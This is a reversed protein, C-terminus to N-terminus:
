LSGLPKPPKVLFEVTRKKQIACTLDVATANTPVGSLTACQEDRGSGPQPQTLQRVVLQMGTDATARVVGAALDDPANLVELRWELFWGGYEGPVATEELVVQYPGLATTRKLPRTTGAKLMPVNSFTVLDGAALGAPRNFELRLRWATEDPWLTGQIWKSYGSGWDTRLLQTMLDYDFLRNGTADSLEANRLVWTNSGASARLSIDFASYRVASRGQPGLRFAPKEVPTLTSGYLEPEYGTEVTDLRVELDEVRKVMPASEPQWQPFQSYLPNPFTVKGILRDGLFPYFHCELDRSRRPVVSFAAFLWATGTPYGALGDRGAVVGAQDALMVTPNYTPPTPVANSGVRRFWVILQPSSFKVGPYNQTLSAAFRKRARDALPAPLLSVAQAALSPPVATTGYATGAFQYKDGNPFTVIQPLEKKWQLGRAVAIALLCGIASLLLIGGAIPWRKAILGSFRMPQM